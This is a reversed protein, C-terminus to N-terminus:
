THKPETANLSFFHQETTQPRHRQKHVLRHHLERCSNQGCPRSRPCSKGAHGEALCRYCLQFEKAVNWREPVPKKWFSLDSGFGMRSEAYSVHYPKRPM